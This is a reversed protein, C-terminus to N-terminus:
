KSKKLLPIFAIVLAIGFAKKLIDVDGFAEAIQIKNHQVYYFGLTNIVGAILFVVISIQTKKKM